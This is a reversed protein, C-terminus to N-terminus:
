STVASFKIANFVGSEFRVISTEFKVNKHECFIAVVQKFRMTSFPINTSLYHDDQLKKLKLFVNFNNKESFLDELFKYTQNYGIKNIVEKEKFNELNYDREGTYNSKLNITEVMVHCDEIKSLISILENLKLKSKFILEVDNILIKIGSHVELSELNEERDYNLFFLNKESNIDRYIDRKQFLDYSKDGDFFLSNEFFYDEEKHQNNLNERLSIRDNGWRFKKGNIIFGEDIIYEINM